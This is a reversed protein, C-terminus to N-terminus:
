KIIATTATAAAAQYQKDHNHYKRTALALTYTGPDPLYIWPRLLPTIMFSFLSLLFYFKSHSNDSRTQDDVCFRWQMAAHVSKELSTVVHEAVVLM